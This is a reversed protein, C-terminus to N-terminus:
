PDGLAVVSSNFWHGSLSVAAGASDGQGRITLCVVGVVENRENFLCSGSAGPMPPSDFFIYGAVTRTVTASKEEPAFIDTYSYQRWYVKDGPAPGIPAHTYYSPVGRLLNMISLDRDIANLKSAVIGYNGLEDSWAFAIPQRAVWGSQKYFPQTVHAVSYVFGDVPCAHGIGTRGILYMAAKTNIEKKQKPATSLSIDTSHTACALLTLAFAISASLFRYSM